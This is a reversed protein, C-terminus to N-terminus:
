QRDPQDVVDMRPTDDPPRHQIRRALSHRSSWLSARGCLAAFRRNRRGTARCQPGPHRGFESQDRRQELGLSSRSGGWAPTTNTLTLSPATAGDLPTDNVFWQYHMPALGAAEARFTAQSGLSVVQTLPQTTFLPALVLPPPFDPLTRLFPYTIGETINWSRSFDWGEFTAQQRMQTTTKGFGAPSGASTLQGSTLIDWYAKEILGGYFFGILGGVYTNGSVQGVSYCEFVTGANFGALGGSGYGLAQVAGKALCQHVAGSNSGVAGGARTGWTADTSNGVVQGDAECRSITGSSSNYGALGGVFAGQAQVTGLALSDLIWGQNEGALGGARSGWGDAVNTTCLVDGSAGCGQIFSGEWNMGVLGGVLTGRAQVRGTAFSNTVLGLHEGLLGGVGGAPASSSVVNGRAQCDIVVGFSSGVLGGAQSGQSEVDGTAGSTTLSFLTNGTASNTGRLVGILGGVGAFNPSSARVSGSAYCNTVGDEVVGALGGVNAAGVVPGTALCEVLIGRSLGVLGGVTNSSSTISCSSTCNWLAGALSHGVLGGMRLQDGGGIAGSVSCNTLVGYSQGALGGVRGGGTVSVQELRLNQIRGELSINGFLGIYSAGPRNIVLNRISHGNGDFTGAFPKQNVDDVYSGIPKFGERLETSTGTDNWNGTTTADIDTQLRYNKKASVVVNEGIWVLHGVQSIQYPNAASGTGPPVVPTQGPVTLAQFVLGVRTLMALCPGM